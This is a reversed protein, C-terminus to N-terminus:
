QGVMDDFIKSLNRSAKIVRVIEIGYSTPLYFILYDKVVFSRMYLILDNRERGMEPYQLLLFFKKSIETLLKKAYSLDREVYYELIADLDEQADPSVIFQKTM